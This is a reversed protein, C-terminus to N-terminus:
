ELVYYLGLFLITLSLSTLGYLIWNYLEPIPNIITLVCSIFGMFAGVTLCVFGTFQRKANKVKKFEKVHIAIIDEDWGLASLNERIKEVDLKDAVWQQIVSTNVDTIYTM